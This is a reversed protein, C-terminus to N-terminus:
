PTPTNLCTNTHIYGRVFLKSLLKLQSLLCLLGLLNTLDSFYFLINVTSCTPLLYILLDDFSPTLVNTNQEVAFDDSKVILKRKVGVGRGKCRWMGDGGGHVRTSQRPLFSRNSKGNGNASNVDILRRKDKRKNWAHEFRFFFRGGVRGAKYTHEYYRRLSPM